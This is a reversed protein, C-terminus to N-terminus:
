IKPIEQREDPTLAILYPKLLNALEVIKAQAQDLVESPIAQNHKNAKM